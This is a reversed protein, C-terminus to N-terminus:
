CEVLVCQAASVLLVPLMLIWWLHPRGATSLVPIPLLLGQGGPRAGRQQSLARLLNRLGTREDVCRSSQPTLTSTGQSSAGSCQFQFAHNTERAQSVWSKGGGATPERFCVSRKGLARFGGVARPALRCFLCVSYQIFIPKILLPRFGVLVVPM